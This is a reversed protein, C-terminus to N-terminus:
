ARAMEIGSTAFVPPTTEVSLVAKSVLQAQPGAEKVKIAPTASALDTPALAPPPVEQFAPIAFDTPAIEEPSAMRAKEPTGFVKIASDMRATAPAATEQIEFPMERKGAATLSLMQTRTSTKTPITTTDTTGTPPAAAVQTAVGSTTGTKVIGTGTAVIGPM